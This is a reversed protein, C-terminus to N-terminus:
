MGSCLKAILGGFYIAMLFATGLVAGFGLQRFIMKIEEDEIFSKKQMHYSIKTFLHRRSFSGLRVAPCSLPNYTFFWFKFSNPIYITATVPSSGAVEAIIRRKALKAERCVMYTKDPDLSM